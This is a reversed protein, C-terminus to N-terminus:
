ISQVKFLVQHLHPTFRFLGQGLGPKYKSHVQATYTYGAAPAVGAHDSVSDFGPAPGFDTAGAVRNLNQNFQLDDSLTSM